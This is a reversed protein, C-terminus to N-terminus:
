RTHGGAASVGLNMIAIRDAMAMAETQDHTVYITTIQNDIQLRRLEAACISACSRMWTRSRSM